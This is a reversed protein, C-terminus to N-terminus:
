YDLMAQMDSAPILSYDLEPRGHDSVLSMCDSIHAIRDNYDDFEAHVSAEHKFFPQLVVLEACSYPSDSVHGRGCPISVANFRTTALGNPCWSHTHKCSSPNLIQTLACPEFLTKCQHGCGYSTMQLQCMILVSVIRTHPQLKSYFNTVKSLLTTFLILSYLFPLIHLVAHVDHPSMAMYM